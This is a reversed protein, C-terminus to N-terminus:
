ISYIYIPKRNTIMEKLKAIAASNEIKGEKLDDWISQELNNVEINSVLLKFKAKLNLYTFIYPGGAVALYPVISKNSTDQSYYMKISSAPFQLSSESHLCEQKFVKLKNSNIDACLLKFDGDNLANGFCICNSFSTVGAVLDSKVDNWIKNQNKTESSM